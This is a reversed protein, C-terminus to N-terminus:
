PLGRLVHAPQPRPFSPHAAWEGVFHSADFFGKALWRPLDDHTEYHECAARMARELRSFAARDWVLDCRLQLMFSGEFSGFEQRLVTLVDDM